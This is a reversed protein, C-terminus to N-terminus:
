IVPYLFYHVIKHFQSRRKRAIIVALSLGIDLRKSRKRTLGNLEIPTNDFLIFRIRRKDLRDYVHELVDTFRNDGFSDFRLCLQFCTCPVVNVTYLSKKKGFRHALM